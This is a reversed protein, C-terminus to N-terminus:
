FYYETTSIIEYDVIEIQPSVMGNWVNRKCEGVVNITVCGMESCLTDYEEESSGFKILSTGNPLTIKLTTGKMLQCDGAHVKINEIAVM